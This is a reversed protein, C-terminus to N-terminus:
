RLFPRQSRVCSGVSAARCQWSAKSGRLINFCKKSPARSRQYSKHSMTCRLARGPLMPQLRLCTLPTDVCTPALVPSVSPCFFLEGQTLTREVAPVVRIEPLLKEILRESTTFGEVLVIEPKPELPNEPVKTEEDWTRDDISQRPVANSSAPDPMGATHQPPEDTLELAEDIQITPILPSPPDIGVVDMNREEPLMPPKQSSRHVYQPTRVICPGELGSSRESDGFQTASSHSQTVRRGGNYGASPFLRASPHFSSSTNPFLCRNTPFESSGGSSVPVAHSSGFSSAHDRGYDISAHHQSNQPRLHQNGTSEALEPPWRRNQQPPRSHGQNPAKNRGTLRDSARCIRLIESNDWSANEQRMCHAHVDSPKHPPITLTLCRACLKYKRITKRQEPTRNDLPCVRGVATSSKSRGLTADDTECGDSPSLKPGSQGAPTTEAKNHSKKRSESIKNEQWERRKKTRATETGEHCTPPNDTGAPPPYPATTELEYMQTTGSIKQSVEESMASITTTHCRCLDGWLCTHPVQGGTHRRSDTVVALDHRSM